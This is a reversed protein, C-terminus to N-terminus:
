LRGNTKAGHPTKPRVGPGEGGYPSPLAPKRPADQGAPINNKGGWAAAIAVGKEATSRNAKRMHEREAELAEAQEAEMELRAARAAPTAMADVKRNLERLEALILSETTM